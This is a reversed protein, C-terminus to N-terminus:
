PMSIRLRLDSQTMLEGGIIDQWGSRGITGIGGGFSVDRRLYEIGTIHRELGHEVIRGCSNFFPEPVV